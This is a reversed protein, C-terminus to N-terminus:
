VFTLSLMMWFRVAVLSWFVFFCKFTFRLSELPLWCFFVKNFLIYRDLLPVMLDGWLRCDFMFRFLWFRTFSYYTCLTRPPSLMLIRKDFGDWVTFWDFTCDLRLETLCKWTICVFLCCGNDFWDLYPEEPILVMFLLLLVVPLPDRRGEDLLFPLWWWLM